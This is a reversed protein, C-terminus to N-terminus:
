GSKIELRGDAVRYRLTAWHVATRAFALFFFFGVFALDFLGTGFSSEGIGEGLLLALFVFWFSKITRWAQPILNVALSAPHLSRWQPATVEPAAASGVESAM